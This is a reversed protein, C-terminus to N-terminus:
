STKSSINRPDRGGGYWPNVGVLFQLFFGYNRGNQGNSKSFQDVPGPLSVLDM